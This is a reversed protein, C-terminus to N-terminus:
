LLRKNKIKPRYLAIGGGIIIVSLIFFVIRPLHHSTLPRSIHTTRPYQFRLWYIDTLSLSQPTERPVNTATWSAPFPYIMISQPDFESGRIQDRTYKSLINECITRRSWFNPPGCLSNIIVPYNWQIPNQKPNQHEHIWPGLCHGFEHLVVGGTLPPLDLWSFNMTPENQHIHLAETGNYSWSGAQTDFKIRVDSREHFPHDIFHLRLNIHPQYQEMILKRVWDKQEPTGNFFRIKIKQFQKWVNKKVIAAEADLSSFKTTNIPVTVDKCFKADPVTPPDYECEETDISYIGCPDTM